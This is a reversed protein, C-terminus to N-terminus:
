SLQLTCCWKRGVGLAMGASLPTRLICMIDKKFSEVNQVYITAPHDSLCLQEKGTSVFAGTVPYIKLICGPMTTFYNARVTSHIGYCHIAANSVLCGIYRVYTFNTVYESFACRVQLVFSMLEGSPYHLRGLRDIVDIGNDCAVNGSAVLSSIATFYVMYNSLVGYRMIMSNSYFFILLLLYKMAVIAPTRQQLFCKCAVSCVPTITEASPLLITSVKYNTVEILNCRETMPLGVLRVLRVTPLLMTIVQIM